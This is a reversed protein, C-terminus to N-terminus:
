QTNVTHTSNVRHKSHGFPTNAGPANPLPDAARRSQCGWFRALRSQRRFFNRLNFLSGCKQCMNCCCRFVGAGRYEINAAERRTWALCPANSRFFNRLNACCAGVFLMSRHPHPPWTRACSSQPTAVQRFRHASNHMNKLKRFKKRRRDPFPKIKMKRMVNHVYKPCATQFIVGQVSCKRICSSISCLPIWPSARSCPCIGSACM